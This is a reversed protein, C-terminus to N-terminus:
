RGQVALYPLHGLDRSFPVDTEAGEDSRHERVLAYATSRAGQSRAGTDKERAQVSLGKRHQRPILPHGLDHLM